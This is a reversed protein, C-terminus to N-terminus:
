VGAIRTTTPAQNNLTTTNNHNNTTRTTAHHEQMKSDTPERKGNQCKSQQNSLMPQHSSPGFRRQNNCKWFQFSLIAQRM